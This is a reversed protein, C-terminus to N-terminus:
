WRYVNTCSGIMLTKWMSAAGRDHRFKPDMYICMYM